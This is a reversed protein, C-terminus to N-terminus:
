AESGNSRIRREVCKRLHAHTRSLSQYVADVSRGLQEAIVGCALGHEHRLALLRRLDSSLGAICERLARVRAAQEDAPAEEIETALVEYVSDDLVLRKRARALDIARHRATRLAWRLLHTSDTYRAPDELAQVVVQQFVDDVLDHERIIMAAVAMVRFRNALLERGVTAADLAM